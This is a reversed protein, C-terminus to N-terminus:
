RFWRLERSAPWSRRCDMEVSARWCIITLKRIDWFLNYRTCVSVTYCNRWNSPRNGIGTHNSTPMGCDQAQVSSAGYMEDQGAFWVRRAHCFKGARLTRLWGFGARMLALRVPLPSVFPLVEEAGREAALTGSESAQRLEVTTPSAQPGAMM